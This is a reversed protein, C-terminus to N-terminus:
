NTKIKQTLSNERNLDYYSFNLEKLMDEINKLNEPSEETKLYPSVNMFDDLEIKKLQTNVMNHVIGM